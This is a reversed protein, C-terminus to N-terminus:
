FILISKYFMGIAPSSPPKPSSGNDADNDIYRLIDNLVFYGKEQPALFFSQSFSKSVFNSGTMCGTVLVFVGGKYSGQADVTLIETHYNQYDFSM